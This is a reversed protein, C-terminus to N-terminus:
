ELVEEVAELAINSKYLRILEQFGRLYNLKQENTLYPEIAEYNSYAEEINEFKM